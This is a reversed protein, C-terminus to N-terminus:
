RCTPKSAPDEIRGLLYAVTDIGEVNIDLEYHFRIFKELQPIQEGSLFGEDEVETVEILGNEQLAHIFDIEIDHYTCFTEVPVLYATKM